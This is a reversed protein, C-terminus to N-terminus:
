HSFSGVYRNSVVTGFSLDLQSKHNPLEGRTSPPIKGHMSLRTSSPPGKGKLVVHRTGM